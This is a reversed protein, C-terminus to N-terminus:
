FKIAKAQRGFNIEWFSGNNNFLHRSIYVITDGFSEQDVHVGGNTIFDNIVCGYGNIYFMTNFNASNIM